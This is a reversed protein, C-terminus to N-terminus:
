SVGQLELIQARTPNEAVIGWQYSLIHDSANGGTTVDTVSHDFADEESMGDNVAEQYAENVEENCLYGPANEALWDISEDLADQLHNAWVMHREEGYAGFWLIFRETTWDSDTPNIIRMERM